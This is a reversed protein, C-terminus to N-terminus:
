GKKNHHKLTPAGVKGKQIKGVFLSSSGTPHIIEIKMENYTWSIRIQDGPNLHLVNGHQRLFATTSFSSGIEPPSDGASLPYGYAGIQVSEGTDKGYRHMPEEKTSPSFRTLGNEPHM